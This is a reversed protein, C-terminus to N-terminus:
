SRQRLRKLAMLRDTKIKAEQELFFRNIGPLLSLWELILLFVKKVAVKTNRFLDRIARATEEGKLKFVEKELRPLATYADSLGEELIMEIEKTLQDRPPPIAMPIQKKRLLLHRKSLSAQERGPATSEQKEPTKEQERIEFPREEEPINLPSTEQQLPAPFEKKSLSPLPNM